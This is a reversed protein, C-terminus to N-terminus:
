KRLYEWYAPTAAAQRLAPIIHRCILKGVIILHPQAAEFELTTMMTSQLQSAQVFQKAVKDCEVNHMEPITLPRDKHCDQHGKVHIYHIWLPQCLAAMATIVSYLNHDDTTTDNPQQLGQNQM